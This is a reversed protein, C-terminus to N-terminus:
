SPHSQGGPVLAAWGTASVLKALWTNGLHPAMSLAARPTLIFKSQIAEEKSLHRRVPHAPVLHPNARRTRSQFFRAVVDAM